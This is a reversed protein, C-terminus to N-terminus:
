IHYPQNLLGMNEPLGSIINMNQVAQGSAGKILNDLASVVILNNTRNDYVYGIRCYNSYKVENLAPLNGKHDVNIFQENEYFKQYAAKVDNVSKGDNLRLYITSLIGRQVPLLHPTFQVIVEKGAALSLKEEIESTHRHNTVSYAKFNENVECFNLSLEAKRGAGSTGSAADIIISSPNVVGESLLPYIPLISGTTYCGPNGILTAGIIKDRFLEPLGYVGLLERCPHKVKYTDEYKDINNYRFDASLDVVKVGGKILKNVAEASAGHPLATFVVDSNAAIYDYDPADYVKDNFASLGPYLASIPSGSNSQSVLSIIKIESHFRFINLLEVGTYGNAGIVSVRIM